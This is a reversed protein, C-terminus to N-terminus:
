CRRVCARLGQRSELFPVSIRYNRAGLLLGVRASGGGLALGAHVAVAQALYEISFVSPVNGDANAYIGFPDVRASCITEARTHSVVKSLLVSRGRHPILQEIPPFPDKM